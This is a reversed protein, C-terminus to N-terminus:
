VDFVEGSFCFVCLKCGDELVKFGVCEGKGLVLNFVNVNFIYILVECEVVGGVVGVQLNLKIYCKVINVNVVIVCDGDVCVVEGQKGKDKGINVVVQDGKKICNVM